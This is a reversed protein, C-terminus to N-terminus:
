ILLIMEREEMYIDVLTNQNELSPLLIMMGEPMFMVMLATIALIAMLPFLTMVQAQMFM